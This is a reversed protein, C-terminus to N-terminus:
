WRMEGGRLGRPHHHFFDPPLYLIIILKWDTKTTERVQEQVEEPLLHHHLNSLLLNLSYYSLVYYSIIFYWLSTESITQDWKSSFQFFLFFLLILHSIFTTSPSSITAHSSSTSRQTEQITKQLLSHPPFPTQNCQHYTEGLWLFDFDCYILRVKNKKEQNPPINKCNICNCSTTCEIGLFMTIFM